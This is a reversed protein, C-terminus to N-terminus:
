FVSQPTYTTPVAYCVLETAAASATVGLSVLFYVSIRVPRIAERPDSRTLTVGGSGHYKFAEQSLGVRRSRATLNRLFDQGLGSEVRVGESGVRPMPRPGHLARNVPLWARSVLPKSDSFVVNGLFSIGAVM